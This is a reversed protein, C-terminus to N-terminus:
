KSEEVRVLGRDAMEQLLALLDRECRDRPVEYEAMLRECLRGVAVPSDLESWVSSGIEDLGFYTGERPDMIVTEDAVKRTVFGDAARVVTDSSIELEANKRIPM